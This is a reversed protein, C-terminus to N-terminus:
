LGGAVLIAIEQGEQCAIPRIAGDVDILAGFHKTVGPAPDGGLAGNNVQVTGSANIQEQVAITVNAAEPQTPDGNPLGGYVAFLVSVAM